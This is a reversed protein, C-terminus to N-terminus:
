SWRWFMGVTFALALSLIFLCYFASFLLHCVKYGLELEEGRWVADCSIIHIRVLRSFDVLAWVDQEGVIAAFITISRGGSDNTAPEVFESPVAFRRLQKAKCKDTNPGPQCFAVIKDFDVRNFRIISSELGFSIVILHQMYLVLSFISLFNSQLSDSMHGVAFIM